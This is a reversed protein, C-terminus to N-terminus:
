IQWGPPTSLLTCCLGGAKLTLNQHSTVSQVAVHVMHANHVLMCLRMLYTWRHLAVKYYGESLTKRLIVKKWLWLVDIPLIKPSEKACWRRELQWRGHKKIYTTAKFVVIGKSFSKWPLYNSERYIRGLKM